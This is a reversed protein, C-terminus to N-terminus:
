LRAKIADIVANAYEEVDPPTDDDADGPVVLEAVLEAIARIDGDGLNVDRALLTNLSREMNILRLYSPTYWVGNKKVDGNPHDREAYLAIDDLEKKVEKLHDNEVRTLSAIIRDFYSKVDADLVLGGKPKSSVSSGRIGSNLDAPSCVIEFHMADKNNRYYGGWGWVRAGSNTRIALIDDIMARPMDTILHPGYPNTLWNIDVALSMATRLGNWWTFISGPGYAHLSYGAGGTIKRCNYAGTQGSKPAYNHIFLCQDLAQYAQLFVNGKGTCAPAWIHRLQSTSLVM